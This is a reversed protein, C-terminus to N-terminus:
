KVPTNLKNSAHWFRPKGSVLSGDSNLFETASSIGIVDLLARPRLSEKVVSKITGPPGTTTMSAVPVSTRPNLDPWPRHIKRLTFIMIM